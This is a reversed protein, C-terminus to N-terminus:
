LIRRTLKRYVCSWSFFVIFFGALILLEDVVSGFGFGFLIIKKLALNTVVLPNFELFRVLEHSVNELPLIINSFFMLLAAIIMSSFIVTEESMFLYGVFMGISIFASLAVLLVLALPGLIPIISIELIYEIGVGILMFQISVIILCALYISLVFTFNKTPAMFNRFFAKTKKEKLVLTSSLLIAGFLAMLSLIIPVIYDRNTSDMNIAEVRTGIPSVVDGAGVSGQSNLSIIIGNLSKTANDLKLIVEDQKESVDDLGGSVENGKEEIDALIELVDDIDDELSSDNDGFYAKIDELDDIADSVNELPFELGSNVDRVRRADVLAGSVKSRADPLSTKVDELSDILGQALGEGVGSTKVLISKQIENILNNALNVRSYDVYFVIDEGSVEASLNGPFIVCIQSESYKVSEVCSDRSSYRNSGFGGEEFDSIVSNTFDGYSESYVGVQVNSLGSSNFAFGAFMVILLPILIVALSSIKSRFFIKLNKGTLSILGDLVM